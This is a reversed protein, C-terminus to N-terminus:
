KVWRRRSAIRGRDCRGSAYFALREREPLERCEHLSVRVMYLAERAGEVLSRCVRRRAKGWVQMQWLTVARGHDGKRECTGVDPRYHSEHAAISMLLRQEHRDLTVQEIAAAVQYRYDLDAYSRLPTIGHSLVVLAAGIM